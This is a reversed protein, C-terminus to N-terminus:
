PLPCSDARAPLIVGWRVRGLATGRDDGDAWPLEWVGTVDARRMLADLGAHARGRGQADDTQDDLVLAGCDAVAQEKVWPSKLHYGDILVALPRPSNAVINGGLWIDSVVLRLRADTYRRWTAQAHQALLAGPFNARTRVHLRDALVTKSVTLGLCLVVHALAAFHVARRLMAPTDPRPTATMALWGALLFGNAGWRSQLSVDTAFAIGLTLAMPALGAIWLFRADAPALAAAPHRPADDRRRAALVVAAGIVLPVVRVLQMLVFDAIGRLGVQPGPAGETVARAYRFPLFSTERLWLVHPLLVLAFFAAAVAVGLAQRRRPLTRDFLLAALLGAIPLLAVYKVLMALGAVTGALAWQHMRGERLARFFLLVMAAQFPLLATNHNFCDAGINHYTVLSTLLMAILSRRPSMFACGLRWGLLLAVAVCAQTAVFALSLSPGFVQMLVHMIWTPLPPHKWYGNELSFAWVFQEASDIEPATYLSFAASWLVAQALACLVAPTWPSAAM